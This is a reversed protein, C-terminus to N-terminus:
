LRTAASAIVHLWTKSICFPTHAERLEILDIEVWASKVRGDCVLLILAAGFSHIAGDSSLALKRPRPTLPPPFGNIAAWEVGCFASQPITRTTTAKGGLDVRVPRPFPQPSTSAGM